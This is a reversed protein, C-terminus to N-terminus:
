GNTDARGWRTSTGLDAIAINFKTKDRVIHALEFQAKLLIFRLMVKQPWFQPIRLQQGVADVNATANTAPVEEGASAMEFVRSGRFHRRYPM